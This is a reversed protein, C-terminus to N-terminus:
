SPSALRQNAGDPLPKDPATRPVERQSPRVWERNEDEYANCGYCYAPGRQQMDAEPDTPLDIDSSGCFPCVIGASNAISM